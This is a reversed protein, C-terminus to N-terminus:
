LSGILDGGRAIPCQLLFKACGRNTLRALEHQFVDLAALYEQSLAPEILLANAFARTRTKGPLM